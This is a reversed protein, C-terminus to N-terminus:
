QHGDLYQLLTSFHSKHHQALTTAHQKLQPDQFQSAYAELKKCALAEHNMQDEILSLNKSEIQPLGGMKNQM